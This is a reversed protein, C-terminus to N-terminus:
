PTSGTCSAGGAYSLPMSNSNLVAAANNRSSWIIPSNSCMTSSAWRACFPRREITRVIPERGFRRSITSLREPTAQRLEEVLRRGIGRRRHSEARLSRRNGSSAGVATPHTTLACLLYGVIQDGRDAVLALAMENGPYRAFWARELETTEAADFQQSLWELRIRLMADVDSSRMERIKIM